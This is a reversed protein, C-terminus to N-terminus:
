DDDDDEAANLLAFDVRTKALMANRVAQQESLQHLGMELLQHLAQWGPLRHALVADCVALLEIKESDDDLLQAAGQFREGDSTVLEVWASALPIEGLFYPDNFASDRLQLMALGTQTLQVPRITWQSGWEDLLAKLTQKSQCALAKPWDHRPINM